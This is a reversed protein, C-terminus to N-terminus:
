KCSDRYQKPSMGFQAQFLRHFYSINDYGTENAIDIVRMKTNKLLFKAQALRRDQVLETYTKGIRLKIERSLWTFDYHLKEALKYLSGDNYHKEIYRLVALVLKDDMEGSAKDTNNLLHLLLLGMTTQNINRKNPAGFVLTWILNEVLNQIPPVDSVAFHMYSSEGKEGSLIDIIFTHLPTQEHGIMQLTNEFFEPMIIFNVAIDNESAPLIEQRANPTLFLLEGEKLLIKNENVIHTTEGKCMYVVEVYDHMHEPFHIFRTHPRITILKGEILLKKSNITNEQGEMYLDRDITNDGSLIRKEEETVPTLKELIEERM